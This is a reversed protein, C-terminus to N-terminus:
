AAGRSGGKCGDRRPGVQRDLAAPRHGAARSTLQYGSARVPRVALWDANERGPEPSEPIEHSQLNGLARLVLDKLTSAFERPRLAPAGWCEKGECVRPIWLCSDELAFSYFLSGKSGALQAVLEHSGGGPLVFKSLVLNFKERVLVTCAEQISHAFSCLCGLNKLYTAVYSMGTLNEDVLLVRVGASNPEKLSKQQPVNETRMQCRGPHFSERRENQNELEARERKSTENQSEDEGCWGPNLMLNFIGPFGEAVRSELLM